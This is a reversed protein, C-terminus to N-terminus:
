ILINFLMDINDIKRTEIADAIHFHSMTTHKPSARTVICMPRLRSYSMM